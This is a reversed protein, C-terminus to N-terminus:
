EVTGLDLEDELGDFSFDELSSGGYKNDDDPDAPPLDEYYDPLSVPPPFEFTDSESEDSFSGAEENPPPPPATQSVSPAAQSLAAQSPASATNSVADELAFNDFISMDFQEPSPPVHASNLNNKSSKSAKGTWSPKNKKVKEPKVASKRNRSKKQHKVGPNKVRGSKIKAPKVGATSRPLRNPRLDRHDENWFRVYAGTLFIDFFVGIGLLGGTLLWIIGSVYRGLYFRHIGAPGWHLLFLYATVYSKRGERAVTVAMVAPLIIGSFCFCIGLFTVLRRMRGQMENLAGRLGNQRALSLFQKLDQVALRAFLSLKELSLAATHQTKETDTKVPAKPKKIRPLHDKLRFKPAKGGLSRYTKRIFRWNIKIDENKTVSLPLEPRPFGPYQLALFYDATCFLADGLVENEEVQQYKFSEAARLLMKGDCAGANLARRYFLWAADYDGHKFYNDAKEVDQEWASLVAAALLLLIVISFCRKM